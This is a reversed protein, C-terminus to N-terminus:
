PPSLIPSEWQPIDEFDWEPCGYNAAQEESRQMALVEVWGSYDSTPVTYVEYRGNEIM